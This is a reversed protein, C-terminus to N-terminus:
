LSLQVMLREMTVGADLGRKMALDADLIRSLHARIKGENLRRAVDLAKKAPYPKVGLRQAAAAETIRGEEQLLAVCRAVLAYQWVVAGMLKFPDEGSAILRRLQMVAEGPRGATAAGLMAFSDGPPERGVVRQVADRAFPGDILTLKTLESAIGALDSGFVEALYLAADRDLKLGMKKARVTVWGAVDGTKAPAASAIQEGVSYVKLRTAPPAEDLIAVTVEASALLELLAKDPKVGDFDVIVGGDGFLGPSLHPRLAEATVDDGGMRPLERPNLGRAMLTDRLTEEALFRNGTFVLLSM